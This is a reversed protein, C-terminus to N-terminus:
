LAKLITEIRICVWISCVSMVVSGMLSGPIVQGIHLHPETAHRRKIEGLGYWLPQVYGLRLLDEYISAVISLKELDKSKNTKLMCCWDQKMQLADELRDFADM